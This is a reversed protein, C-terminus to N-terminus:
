FALCLYWPNANADANDTPPLNANLVYVQQCPKLNKNKEATM